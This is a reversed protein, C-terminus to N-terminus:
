SPLIEETAREQDDLGEGRSEVETPWPQGLVTEVLDMGVSDQAAFLNVKGEEGRPSGNCEVGIGYLAFVVDLLLGPQTLM